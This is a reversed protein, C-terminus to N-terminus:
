EDSRTRMLWSFDIEIILLICLNERYLRSDSTHRLDIASFFIGEFILDEEITV